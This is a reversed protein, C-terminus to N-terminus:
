SGHAKATAGRGPMIRVNWTNAIAAETMKAVVAWKTLSM